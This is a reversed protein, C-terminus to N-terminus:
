KDILFVTITFFVRQSPLTIIDTERKTSFRQVEKNGELKVFFKGFLKLSKKWDDTILPRSKSGKKIRGISIFESNM